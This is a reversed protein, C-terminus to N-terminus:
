EKSANLSRRAAAKRRREHANDEVSPTEESSKKEEDEDIVISKSKHNGVIIVDSNYGTNGIVTQSEFRKDYLTLLDMVVGSLKWILLDNHYAAYQREGGNTAQISEKVANLKKKIINRITGHKAFLPINEKLLCLNYVVQMALRVLNHTEDIRHHMELVNILEEFIGHERAIMFRNKPNASLYVLAQIVHEIIKVNKRSSTLCHIIGYLMTDTGCILTQNQLTISIYDLVKAALEQTEREVSCLMKALGPLCNEENAIFTDLVPDELLLNSITALAHQQCRKHADNDQEIVLVACLSEIMNNTLALAKRLMKDESLKKLACSAHIKEKSKGYLINHLHEPVKELALEQETKKANEPIPNIIQNKNDHYKLNWDSLSTNIFRSPSEPVKFPSQNTTAM